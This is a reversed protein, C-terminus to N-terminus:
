TEIEHLLSLATECAILQDMLRAILVECLEVTLGYRGEGPSKLLERIDRLSSGFSKLKLITRLREVDQERYFRHKNERRPAILGRDEYFRLARYTVGLETAVQIITLWGGVAGENM